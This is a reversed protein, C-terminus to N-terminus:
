SPYPCAREVTGDLTTALYGSEDLEDAVHIDVSTVEDASSHHRVIVYTTTPHEVDVTRQAPM